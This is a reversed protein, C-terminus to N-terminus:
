RIASSSIVTLQGTTQNYLMWVDFLDTVFNPLAQQDQYRLMPIHLMNNSFVAESASNQLTSNLATIFFTTGNFFLTASMKSGNIDVVPIIGTNNWTTYTPINGYWTKTAITDLRSLQGNNNWQANCYNMISDADWQNTLTLDGLWTQPTWNPDTPTKLQDICTKPTM